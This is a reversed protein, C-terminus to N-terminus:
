GNESIEKWLDTMAEDGILDVVYAISEIATSGLIFHFEFHEGNGIFPISGADYTPDQDFRKAMECAAGLAKGAKRKHRNKLYVYSLMAYLYSCPQDLIGITEPQRLSELTDIEWLIIKEASRVDGSQIYAYAKGIVTRIMKTISDILSESLFPQAEAPRKSILSLIFGIQDSYIRESNHEKLLEAAQDGQGLMLRVTSIYEYIGIESISPNNNQSLLSLSRELLELARKLLDKDHDKGGFIMFMIASVYVIDFSNPFRRLAREAEALGNRDEGSIYEALRKTLAGARNDKMEYGILVDVSVDFLDAMETILGLEPTSLRNEWKHVAGVTVGLVEALQEQTMGKSKRFSKINEALNMKM